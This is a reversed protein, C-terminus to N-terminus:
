VRTRTPSTGPKSLDATVSLEKKDRVIKLEVKTGQAKRGIEQTLEAPTSVTKGDISLIVDGARLVSAAPTGQMVTTVLVGKKGSAGLYDAMQETLTEVTAGLQPRSPVALSFPRNRVDPAFQLMGGRSPGVNFRRLVGNPAILDLGSVQAADKREGIKITLNMKKGDRSVGLNLTRDVPTEQVLRALEAASFVPVSSYELIVDNQQLHAAEAPSGKEVSHVIVGTESNLKYQAMNTATVDETEIGLYARNSGVRIVQAALLGAGGFAVLAVGLLVMGGKKNLRPLRMPKESDHIEPVLEPIRGM